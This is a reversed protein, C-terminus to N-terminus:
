APVTQPSCYWTTLPATNCHRSSSGTRQMAASNRARRSMNHCHHNKNYSRYGPWRNIHCYYVELAYSCEDLLIVQEEGDLWVATKPSCRSKSEGEEAAAERVLTVTYSHVRSDADTAEEWYFAVESVDSWYYAEINNEGVHM